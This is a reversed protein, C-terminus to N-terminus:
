KKKEKPELNFQLVNATGSQIEATLGSTSPNNYKELILSNGGGMYNPDFDTTEGPNAVVASKATETATISVQHTGVPAGDNPEYTMVNLIEGDKIVGSAPRSGTTEFTITGSALPAGDLTVTGSVPATSSRDPGGGCGIVTLLFMCFFLRKM